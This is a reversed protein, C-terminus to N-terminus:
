NNRWEKFAEVEEETPWFAKDENAIRELVTRLHRELVKAVGTEDLGALTPPLENTLALIAMRLAVGVRYDNEEVQAKAVLEGNERRARILDRIGGVQARLVRAEGYDTCALLRTELDSLTTGESGAVPPPASPMFRAAVGPPISPLAAIRASVEADSFIDTGEKRWRGLTRASIGVENSREAITMISSRFHTGKRQYGRRRM